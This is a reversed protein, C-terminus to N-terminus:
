PMPETHLQQVANDYMGWNLDIKASGPTTLQRRSHSCLFCSAEKQLNKLTSTNKARSSRRTICHFSCTDTRRCNTVTNLTTNIPLVHSTWVTHLSVFGSGELLSVMQIKRLLFPSCRHCQSAMDSFRSEGDNHGTRNNWVYLDKVAPLLPM